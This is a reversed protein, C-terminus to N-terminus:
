TTRPAAAWACEVELVAGARACEALLELSIRLNEELALSSGDFMRSNFLPPDGRERRRVSETLLPRVFADLQNPPCHDTHVAVLVGYESAVERAFAALARAGSEGHGVAAGSM